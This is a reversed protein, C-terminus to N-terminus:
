MCMQKCRFVHLQLPFDYHSMLFLAYNYLNRYFDLRCAVSCSCSLSLGCYFCLRLTLSLSLPRSLSSISCFFISSVYLFRPYNLRLILSSQLVASQLIWPDNGHFGKGLSIPSGGTQQHQCLSSQLDCIAGVVWDPRIQRSKQTMFQVM